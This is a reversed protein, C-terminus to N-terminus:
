LIYDNSNEVAVLATMNASTLAAARVYTGLSSTRADIVGLNKDLTDPAEV